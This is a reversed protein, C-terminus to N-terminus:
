RFRKIKADYSARRANHLTTRDEDPGQVHPMPSYRAPQDGKPDLWLPDTTVPEGFPEAGNYPAPGGPTAPDQGDTAPPLQVDTQRGPIADEMTPDLSMGTIDSDAALRQAATRFDM